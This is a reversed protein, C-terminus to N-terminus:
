IEVKVDNVHPTEWVDVKFDPEPYLSRLEATLDTLNNEDDWKDKPLLPTLVRFYHEYVHETMGVTWYRRPKRRSINIRYNM